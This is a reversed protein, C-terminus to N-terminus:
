EIPYATVFRPAPRVSEVIWITRVQVVTGHPTKLSGDVVYKVGHPSDVREKVQGVQAIELLGQELEGVTTEDFGLSRFFKAKSKGVAHTESLLYDVIKRAPIYADTKNPLHLLSM